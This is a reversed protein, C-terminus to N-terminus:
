ENSNTKGNYLARQDSPLYKLMRKLDWHKREWALYDARKIHDNQILLNKLNLVIIDLIM